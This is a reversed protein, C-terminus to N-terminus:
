IIHFENGYADAAGATDSFIDILRIVKLWHWALRRPMPMYKFFFPNKAWVHLGDRRKEYSQIFFNHFLDLINFILM